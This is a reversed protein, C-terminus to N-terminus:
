YTILVYISVVSNPTADVYSFADNANYKHNCVVVEGASYSKSYQVGALKYDITGSTVARVILYFQGSQSFYISSGDTLHFGISNKAGLNSNLDGSIMESLYVQKWKESDFAGSTDKLCIYPSNGYICYDGKVYSKDKEYPPAINNLVNDM